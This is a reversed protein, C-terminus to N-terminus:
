AQETQQCFRRGPVHSIVLEAIETATYEAPVARRRSEPDHKLTWEVLRYSRGWPLQQPASVTCSHIQQAHLNASMAQLHTFVANETM